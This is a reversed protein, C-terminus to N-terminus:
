SGSADNFSFLTEVLTNLKTLQGSSLRSVKPMLKTIEAQTDIKEELRAIIAEVRGLHAMLLGSVSGNTDGPTEVQPTDPFVKTGPQREVDVDREDVVESLTAITASARSVGPALVSAKGVLKKFAPLTLGLKSLKALFYESPGNYVYEGRKKTQRVDGKAICRVLFNNMVSFPMDGEALLHIAYTLLVRSTFARGLPICRALVWALKVTSQVGPDRVVDLDSGYVLAEFKERNQSLDTKAILLTGGDFSEKVKEYLPSGPPVKDTCIIAM